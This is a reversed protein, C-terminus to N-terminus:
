KLLAQWSGVLQLTLLYLFIHFKEDNLRSLVGATKAMQMLSLIGEHM